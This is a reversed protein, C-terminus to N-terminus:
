REPAEEFRLLMSRLTDAAAVLDIPQNDMTGEDAHDYIPAFVDPAPPAVGSDTMFQPFIDTDAGVFLFAQM